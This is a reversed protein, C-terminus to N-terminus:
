QHSKSCQDKRIDLRSITIERDLELLNDLTPLSDKPLFIFKKRRKDEVRISAFYLNIKELFDDEELFVDFSKGINDEGKELFIVALLLTSAPTDVIGNEMSLTELYMRELINEPLNQPLLGSLGKKKIHERLTEIANKTM